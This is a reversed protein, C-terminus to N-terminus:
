PAGFRRGKRLAEWLGLGAVALNLLAAQLEESLSLGLSSAILLFVGRWTSPQRLQDQMWTM